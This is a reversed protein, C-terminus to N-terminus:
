YDELIYSNFIEDLSVTWIKKKGNAATVEYKNAKSWDGPKGLEPSGELPKIVAAQSINFVVIMERTTFKPRQSKPFNGDFQIDFTAEASTETENSVEWNGSLIRVQEVEQEGSGPNTGTGYYRWYCGQIGTIDAGSFTDLEELNNKLCSTVSVALMLVAFISLVKKMVANMKNIVM